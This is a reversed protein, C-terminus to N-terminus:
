EVLYSDDCIPAHFSLVPVTKLHWSIIAHGKYAQHHPCLSLVSCLARRTHPECPVRGHVEIDDRIKLSPFSFMAVGDGKLWTILLGIVPTTCLVNRPFSLLVQVLPVGGTSHCGTEGQSM